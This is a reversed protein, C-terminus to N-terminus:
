TPGVLCQLTNNTFLEAIWWTLHNRPDQAELGKQSM